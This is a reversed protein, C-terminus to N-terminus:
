TMPQSDGPHEGTAPRVERIRCQFNLTRGALPHNGDVVVRDDTVELVRLHFERGEHRTHLIRGPRLDIDRSFKEPSAEFVLNEQRPGYAEEPSLTVEVLEGVQSDALAAELKPLIQAHGHVYHMPQGDDLRRGEDDTLIYDVAVLTNETVRATETM